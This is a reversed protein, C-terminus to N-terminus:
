EVFHLGRAERIEGEIEKIKRRLWARLAEESEAATACRYLTDVTLGDATLPVFRCPVQESQLDNPVFQMLWCDQCRTQRTRDLHKPCSPSEEFMYPARWPRAPSRKYGGSELFELERNLLNLIIHLSNDM